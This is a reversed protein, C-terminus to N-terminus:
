GLGNAAVQPLMAVILKAANAAALPLFQEFSMPSEQGAIDSLARVIVFPVGFRHCVQAIAAGEMEVADCKPFATRAHHIHEPNTMFKDGSGVQGRHATLALDLLTDHAIDILIQEAAFTAPMGPVQGQAYGFATVDVDHHLVDISVIIDGVAQKDNFGGASGTNIISKPKFIQCILTTTIAANVKGIGSQALVVDVGQIKGVHFDIGAITSTQSESLESQFAAVEEAMAGIIAIM